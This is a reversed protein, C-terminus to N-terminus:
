KKDEGKTSSNTVSNIINTFANNWDGQLLHKRSENFDNRKSKCFNVLDNVSVWKKNDYIKKKDKDVELINKSTKIYFDFREREIEKTTKIDLENV